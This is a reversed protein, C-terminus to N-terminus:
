TKGAKPDPHGDSESSPDLGFEPDDAMRERIKNLREELVEVASKGGWEREKSEAVEQMAAQYGAEYSEPRSGDYRAMLDFVAGIARVDGRLAKALLVEVAARLKTTMQREGDIALAIRARVAEELETKLNRSRKPRGKPNGSQGPRFRSAEPPRGYGVEYEGGPKRGRKGRTM